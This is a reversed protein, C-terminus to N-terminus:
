AYLVTLDINQNSNSFSESFSEMLSNSSCFPQSIHPFLEAKLNILEQRFEDESTIGEAIEIFSGQLFKILQQEKENGLQLVWDFHNVVWSQLCVLEGGSFYASIESQIEPVLDYQTDM